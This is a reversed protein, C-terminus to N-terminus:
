YPRTPESIHILSLEQITDDDADLNGGFGSADVRVNAAAVQPENAVVFNAGQYVILYPRGGVVTDVLQGTQDHLEVRGLGNLNIYVPGVADASPVFVVTLGDVYEDIRPTTVLDYVYDNAAFQFIEDTGSDVLYLDDNPAVGVATPLTAQAPVMAIQRWVKDAGYAYVALTATDLMVLEGASNRALGQPNTVGEPPAIGVNDWRM